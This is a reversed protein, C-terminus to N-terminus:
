VRGAAADPSAQVRCAVGVKIPRDLSRSKNVMACAVVALIAHALARSAVLMIAFSRSTLAVAPRCLPTQLRGDRLGAAAISRPYPQPLQAHDDGVPSPPQRVWSGALQPDARQQMPLSTVSVALQLGREWGGRPCRGIGSWPARTAPQSSHALQLDSERIQPWLEWCMRAGCLSRRPSCRNCTWALRLCGRSRVALAAEIARAGVPCPTATTRRTEDAPPQLM